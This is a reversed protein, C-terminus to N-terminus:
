PKAVRHARIEAKQCAAVAKDRSLPMRIITSNGQRSDIIALGVDVLRPDDSTLTRTCQDQTLLVEHGAALEKTLDNDVARQYLCVSGVTVVM